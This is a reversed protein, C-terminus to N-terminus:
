GNIELVNKDDSVLLRDGNFKKLLRKKKKIMFFYSPFIEM